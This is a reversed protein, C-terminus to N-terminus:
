DDALGAAGLGEAWNDYEEVHVVLGDRCTWV